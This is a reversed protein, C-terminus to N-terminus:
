RGLEGRHLGRQRGTGSRPRAVDVVGLRRGARRAAALQGRWTLVRASVSLLTAGACRRLASPVVLRRVVSPCLHDHGPPLRAAPAARRARRRRRRHRPRPPRRRVRACSRDGAGPRARRAPRRGRRAGPRCRSRPAPGAPTRRTRRSSRGVAPSSRSRSRSHVVAAAAIVRAQGHGPSELRGSAGGASVPSARPGAATPLQGDGGAEARRQEVVAEAQGRRRGAASRSRGDRGPSSRSGPREPPSRAIWAQELSGCTAKWAIRLRARIPRPTPTSASTGARSRGCTRGGGAVWAVGRLRIPKLSPVRLTWASSVAPMSSCTHTPPRPRGPRSARRSRGPSGASGSASRPSPGRSGAAVLLADEAPVLDVPAGSVPVLSNSAGSKAAVAASPSGTIGISAWMRSAAWSFM